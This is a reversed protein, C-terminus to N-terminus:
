RSKKGAAKRMAAKSKPKKAKARSAKSSAGAGAAVSRVDAAAEPQDTMPAKSPSKQGTTM